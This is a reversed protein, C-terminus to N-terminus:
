RGLFTNMCFNLEIEHINNVAANGNNRTELSSVCVAGRRGDLLEEMGASTRSIGGARPM